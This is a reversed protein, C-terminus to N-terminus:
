GPPLLLPSLARVDRLEEAGRLAAILRETECWPAGWAALGRLKADLEAETLPRDPLGRGITVAVHLVEGDALTACLEAAEVPIGPAETVRIRARLARADAEAVAEDTLEVPGVRGRLLAVACVHQASVTAERGTAVDPRDARLRLLPHGRLELAALAAPGAPLRARLELAADVVPHLVVGVPWAKPANRLVEWRAGLGDLARRPDAAPAFVRLFGFRGEIPAAPGGIGARAFLAAHLGARAAAGVGTSKSAAGLAEVVGCAQSAAHGLADAMGGQSLGLLKAAAVAAGFVGCTATIHFGAEYHGPATANGLRCGIEIGLAIAALLTRGDAGAMEAAAFAAAVVPPGPHMVTPLHQDDYDLVNAAAANLFAATAPDTRGAGIETAVPAGALPGLAGSFARVAADRRGGLACGVVNLLNCRAAARVADPLDHWGTGHAFAALAPTLADSGPPAPAATM